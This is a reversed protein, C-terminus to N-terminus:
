EVAFEIEFVALLDSKLCHLNEAVVPDIHLGFCHVVAPHVDVWLAAFAGTSIHGAKGVVDM